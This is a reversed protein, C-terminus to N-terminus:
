DEFDDAYSDEKDDEDSGAAESPDSKTDRGSAAGGDLGISGAKTEGAKVQTDGAHQASAASAEDAAELHDSDEGTGSELCALAETPSAALTAASSESGMADPLSCTVQLPRSPAAPPSPPKVSSSGATTSVVPSYQGGSLDQLRAESLMRLRREEAVESELVSLRDHLARM